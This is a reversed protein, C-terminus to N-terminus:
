IRGAKQARYYSSRSMGHDVWPERKERSKVPTALANEMSWGYRRVRNKVIDAPLGHEKAFDGILSVKGNHEIPRNRGYNRNQEAYTSWRCNEPRYGDTNKIRDITLHDAYGNALAWARFTAFDDWEACVKIGRGGYRDFAPDNEDNCRQRMKSWINYLRTGKGGHKIPM